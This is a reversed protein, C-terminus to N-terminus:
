IPIGEGLDISGPLNWPETKKELVTFGECTIIGSGTCYGTTIGKIKGDSIKLVAGELTLSIEVAVDVVAVPCDDVLIEISPRHVSNVTHKALPVLFTEGPPYATSDAYKRIERYKHWASCLIDTLRIDLVDGIKNVLESFAVPWSVSGSDRAIRERIESMKEGAELAQLPRRPLGTANFSFFHNLTQLQNEM